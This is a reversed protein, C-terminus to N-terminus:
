SGKPFFWLDGVAANAPQQSSSTTTTITKGLVKGVDLKRQEVLQIDSAVHGHSSPTFSTPKNQIDAWAPKSSTPLPAARLQNNADAYVLQGVTTDAGLGALAGTGWTGSTNVKIPTAAAGTGTIGTSVNVSGAPAPPLTGFEWHGTPYTGVYVPSEGAIPVGSPDQVDSLESLRLSSTARLEFPDQANGSGLLTLDVSTTDRVRLFAGIDSSAAAIVYPDAPTGSGTVSIGTGSQIPVAESDNGCCKAM